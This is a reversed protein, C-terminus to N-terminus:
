LRYDLEHIRYSYHEDNEVCPFAPILADESSIYLSNYVRWYVTRVRRAPHFLGQLLYLLIRTPGLAINLAEVAEFVANIVHPSTEFV